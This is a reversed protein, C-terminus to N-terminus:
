TQWWRNRVTSFWEKGVRRGESRAVATSRATTRRAVELRAHEALNRQRLVEATGLAQRAERKGGLEIVRSLRLTTEAYRAGGVAGTGGFNELEGGVVFQTPMAAREARAEVARVEAAEAALIPNSELSRAVAEELRLPEAAHGSPVAGCAGAFALVM